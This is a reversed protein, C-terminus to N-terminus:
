APKLGAIETSRGAFRVRASARGHAAHESTIQIDGKWNSTSVADEFDDLVLVRNPKTESASMLSACVLLLLARVSM